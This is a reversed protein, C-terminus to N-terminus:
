FLKLYITTSLFLIVSICFGIIFPKYGFGKLEAFSISSGLGFLALLIFYKSVMSTIKILMEWGTMFQDTIFTDGVSRFIALLIFTIIFPPLLNFFNNKNKDKKNKNSPYSITLLPILIILFSNRVLKTSITANFAESSEFTNQYITGAATVQSTDHITTGLLIGSKIHDQDFIFNALYPSIFVSLTGILTIVAVACGIDSKKNNMVSSSAMIATIGCVSSGIAILNLLPKNLDSFSSLAKIFIFIILFNILIIFFSISAYNYFEFFSLRIGILAVGIKLFHKVLIQNISKFDSIKFHNFVLGSLICFLASSIIISYGSLLYSVYESIAVVLIAIIFNKKM